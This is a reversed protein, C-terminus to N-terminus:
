RDQSPNWNCDFLCCRSAGVLNIGLSGAKVSILILRARKNNTDNINDISFQRSKVSNSGDIRFYDKNKVFNEFEIGKEMANSKRRESELQLAQEILNLIGLSQSFVVLKEGLSECFRLILLLIQMKSSSEILGEKCSPSLHLFPHNYIYQLKHWTLLFSDNKDNVLNDYLQEQETTMYLKIVYEHKSVLDKRLVEYGKRHLVNSLIRQLILIMRKM